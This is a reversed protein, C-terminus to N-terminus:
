AIRTIEYFGPSSLEASIQINDFKNNHYRYATLMSNYKSKVVKFKDGVAMTKFPYTQKRAKLISKNAM